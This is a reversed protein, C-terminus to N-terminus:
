EDSHKIIVYGQAKHQKVCDEANSKQISYGVMGGAVSGVSGGGCTVVDATKPNRLVTEPTACASLTLLTLIVVTHKMLVRQVPYLM